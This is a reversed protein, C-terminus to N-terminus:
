FMESEEPRPGDKQGDGLGDEVERLKAILQALEGPEISFGHDPGPLQRDLTFHKEIMCAGLAAAALAMHDGTTHDSYGCLVGHEERMKQMARLNSLRAPAPYLSTCQLLVVRDNGVERCAAIARRIDDGDAMGTSLIVPKGTEAMLTILETDPLDFSAVKYACSGIAALDRVADADCPSSFFEMGLGEAHDKLRGHWSRDIELSQILEFTSVNDLYSFGPTLKSYHAEASFTQFKVADAGAKAAEDMLRRALDFDKNHNSGIEAIVFCPQGDGITRGGLNFNIREAM